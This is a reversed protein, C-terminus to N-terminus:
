SGGRKLRGYAKKASMRVLPNYVRAVRAESCRFSLGPESVDPDQEMEGVPEVRYLAGGGPYLAAFAEATIRSTTVYVKTNDVHKSKKYQAATYDYLTHETNTASPPLISDGEKLGRIGGHWYAVL